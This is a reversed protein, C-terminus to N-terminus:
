DKIFDERMPSFVDILIGAEICEAGHLLNPAIYVGDGGKVIKRVGDIVFEFVGNVIYTSQSHYHAHEYGIAGKQFEVKVLMIQGDYGMVQRRMGEGAPMWVIEDQLLFNESNTKM